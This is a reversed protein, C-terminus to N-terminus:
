DEDSATGDLMLNILHCDKVFVPYIIYCNDFIQDAKNLFLHYVQHKDEELIEIEGQLMKLVKSDPKL